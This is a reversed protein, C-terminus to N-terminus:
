WWWRDCNLRFDWNWPALFFFCVFLCFGSLFWLFGFSPSSFFLFPSVCSVNMQRFLLGLIALSCLLVILVDSLLSVLSAERYACHYYVLSGCLLVIVSRGMESRCEMRRRRRRRRTTTPSHIFSTLSSHFESAHWLEGYVWNPGKKSQSSTNSFIPWKQMLFNSTTNHTKNQKTKKKKDQRKAQYLWSEDM